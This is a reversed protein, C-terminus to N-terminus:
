LATRVFYAHVGTGDSVGVKNGLRCFFVTGLSVENDTGIDGAKFLDYIGHICLANDSAMVIEYLLPLPTKLTERM